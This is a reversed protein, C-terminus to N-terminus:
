QVISQFAQNQLFEVFEMDTAAMEKLEADMEIANRLNNFVEEQNNNRAAIVAQLYHNKASKDDIQELMNQANGQKGGLLM